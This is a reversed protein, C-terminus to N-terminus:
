WHTYTWNKATIRAKQDDTLNKGWLDLGLTQSTDGTLDALGNIISEVSAMTLNGSRFSISMKISNPVFEVDELAPGSFPSNVYTIQSIDLAGLISKLKVTNFTHQFSGKINRSCETLDIVELDKSGYFTQNATWSTDLDDSIIKISKLGSCDKFTQYMSYESLNPVAQFRFVLSTNEPFTVGMFTTQSSRVYYWPDFGQSGGEVKGKEYGANYVKQENEAIQALKEAISM